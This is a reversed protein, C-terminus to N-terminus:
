QTFGAAGYDPCSKTTVVRDGGDGSLSGSSIWCDDFVSCYCMKWSVGHGEGARELGTFLKTAAPEELSLAEISEGSRVVRGRLFSTLFEDEALGAAAAMAGAWDKQPRGGVSIEVSRIRAPGNGVNSVVFRFVRTNKQRDFNNFGIQLAPWVAAQLQKRNADAQELAAYLAILGTVMGIVALVTQTTAIRISIRESPTLGPVRPEKPM